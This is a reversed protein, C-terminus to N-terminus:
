ETILNMCATLCVSCPFEGHVDPIIRSYSGMAQMTELNQPIGGGLNEEEDYDDFMNSKLNERTPLLTEEVQAFGAHMTDNPPLKRLKKLLKM